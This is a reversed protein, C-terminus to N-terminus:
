KGWIRWFQYGRDKLRAIITPLAAVTQSRNGGGDHMLVIDGDSVNNLVRSVIVSTGPRDWDRPDVDWLRIKKGLNAARSRVTNNIAGYPPRLAKPTYGTIARIENDTRTIQSNFTSLSVTTLDPHSWTHNQISHDENHIRRTITKYNDVNQGLVFFTARVNYRDLVDLIQPTYTPHPGDDFSLYVVPAAAQAPSAFTSTAVAGVVGAATILAARRTYPHSELM